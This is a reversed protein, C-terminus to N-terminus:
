SKRLNNQQCLIYWRLRLDCLPFFIIFMLAVFWRGNSLASLRRRSFLTSVEAKGEILLGPPSNHKLCRWGDQSKSVCRIFVVFCHASTWNSRRSFSRSKELSACVCCAREGVLILYIMSRMPPVCVRILVAQWLLCLNVAYSVCPWKKLYVIARAKLLVAFMCFPVRYGSSTLSVIQWHNTYPIYMENYREHNAIKM